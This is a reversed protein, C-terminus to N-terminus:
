ACVPEPGEHDDPGSRKLIELRARQFDVGLGRLVLGAVGDPELLLGLFLHESGIAASKMQAGERKALKLVAEARPTFPLNLSSMQKPFKAVIKEVEARVMADDLGFRNMVREVVPHGSQLLALLLHETGIFDHNLGRAEAQALELTAKLGPAWPPLKETESPGGFKYLNYALLTAFVAPVCAWFFMASANSIHVPLVGIADLLALAIWLQLLLTAVGIAKQVGRRRLSPLKRYWFPLLALYAALAFTAFLALTEGVSTLGQELAMWTTSLLILGSASLSFLLLYKPRRQPGTVGLKSFEEGLPISHGMQALALKFATEASKGSQMHEEIQDRLHSELEDLIESSQIGSARLQRRWGKIEEEVNFM